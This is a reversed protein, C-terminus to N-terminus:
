RWPYRYHYPRYPGRFRGHYYRLPTVFGARYVPYVPPPPYYVYAPYVPYVPSYGYYPLGGLNVSVGWNVGHSHSPVTSVVIILGTIVSIAVLTRM